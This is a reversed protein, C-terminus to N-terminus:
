VQPPSLVASVSKGTVKDAKYVAKLNWDSWYVWDEFTTISFPLSLLEPSNLVIWRGSGDYNCSSIAHLGPDTWYIKRFLFDIALSNPWKINESVITHRYSGDMGAREIKPNNGGDTWYMWGKVPDLAIARPEELYDSILTKRMKGDFDSLEITNKSTDGWYIHNYIWDVALSYVDNLGNGIVVTANNGQDIPAKYIKKGDFDNWFIMGSKTDFDLALADETDDVIEVMNHSDLSISRISRKQSVLLYAKGEAKCRTFNKPDIYYGDICQCSFGGKENQCIQSCIGPIECEDIDLLPLLVVFKYSLKSVHKTNCNVQNVSVLINAMRNAVFDQVATDIRLVDMFVMLEVTRIM